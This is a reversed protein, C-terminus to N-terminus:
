DFTIADYGYLDYIEIITGLLLKWPVNFFTNWKLM